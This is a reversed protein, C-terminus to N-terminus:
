KLMIRIGDQADGTCVKFAYGQEPPRAAWRKSADNPYNFLLEANPSASLARAIAIDSPHTPHRVGDTTMLYRRAPLKEALKKTLNAASGHHPLKFLDLALKDPSLKTASQMLVEAHADAGLLLRFGEYEFIFAISSANAASGDTASKRNVLDAITVPGVSLVEVGLTLVPAVVGKATAQQKAKEAERKLWADWLGRLRGLAARSPSLLTISAGSAPLTRCVPSGDVTLCVAQKQFM